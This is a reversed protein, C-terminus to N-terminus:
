KKETVGVEEDIYKQIGESKRTLGGGGGWLCLDYIIGLFYLLTKWVVDLLKYMPDKVTYCRPREALSNQTSSLFPYNLAPITIKRRKPLVARKPM